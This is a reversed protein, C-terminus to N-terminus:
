DLTRAVRFGIGVDRSAPDNKDRYASRLFQPDSYWSGGRIVRYKCEVTTSVRGNTPAGGYTNRYCDEVWDYVNGHVQYGGWPNPM